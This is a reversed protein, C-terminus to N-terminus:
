DVPQMPAAASLLKLLQQGPKTSWDAVLEAVM